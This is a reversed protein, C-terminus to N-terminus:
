NEPPLWRGDRIRSFTRRMGEALSLRPAWGTASRLPGDDCVWDTHRLERVKGPTLMPRGGTALAAAQNVWAASWLLARPIPVSRVPRGLIAAVTRCVEPWSYGGPRGDHIEYLAPRWPSIELLRCVADALDEVHLLSFRGRAPLASPALGRQMWRLLPLTERDGPGYVAPPRLGVWDLREGRAQLAEEGARKSAAYPSLQPERAALSSLLLVRPAPRAQLVADALRATGEANPRFFDAARAGRVAGAAHVVATAGEVLRGLAGADALDGQVWRVSGCPPLAPREPPPPERRCLARVEWGKQSLRRLLVSGIFGTAGTLAITPPM